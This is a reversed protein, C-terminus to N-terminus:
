ESGRWNSWEPLAETIGPGAPYDEDVYYPPTGTTEELERLPFSNLDAQYRIRRVNVCHPWVPLSTTSSCYGFSTTARNEMEHWWEMALSINFHQQQQQKEKQKMKNLAHTWLADATCFFWSNSNSLFLSRNRNRNRFTIWTSQICSHMASDECGERTCHWFCRAVSHKLGMSKDLHFKCENNISLALIWKVLKGM